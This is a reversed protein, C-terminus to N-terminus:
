QAPGFCACGLRLLAITFTRRGLRSTGPEKDQEPYGAIFGLIQGLHQDSLMAFSASPMADVSKGDPRIGQRIAAELQEPTYERVLQTLNSSRVVSGDPLAFLDSVGEMDRGHCGRYCGLVLAMREGEAVSASDTLIQISRPEAEFSRNMQWESAAYVTGLVGLILVLLGLLIRKFIKM